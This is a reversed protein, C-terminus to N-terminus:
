RKTQERVSVRATGSASARVVLGSRTVYLERVAVSDVTASLTMVDGITRNLGALLLEKGRKTVPAVPVKAKERFLARLGDSRLWAYASVLKDNTKLDYNLDPVSITNSAADYKPTGALRLRGKTDGTFQVTLGIRGGTQPSVIISDVTVSRGAEIITKGRLADTITHSATAYDVSGDIVIKFGTLATDPGVPPLPLKIPVPEAGIVIKPQADLGAHVTLVHHEGEVRGVRIQRPQLMLWVSDALHIPRNLLEWWGAARSTLDIMGIKADIDSLHAMVGAKAAEIVRDTVDYQLISVKCRDKASDSAPVLRELKASSKFHWNPKLTLPTVLEVLITPRDGGKGCGAGITPGVIPKYFGKAAYSLTAHLHVGTGQAFATFPGRTAEFAYHKRSDDGVQKVSDLSGFKKPVVREVIALVPTFDYQLPVDFRSLEAAPLPAEAISDIRLSDRIAANNKRCSVAGLALIAAALGLSVAAAKTTAVQPKPSAHHPFRTTTDPAV